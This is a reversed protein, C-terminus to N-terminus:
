TMMVRMFAFVYKVTKVQKSNLGLLDPNAIGVEDVRSPDGLVKKRFFTPSKKLVIEICSNQGTTWRNRRM